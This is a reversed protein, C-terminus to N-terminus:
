SHKRLFPNFDPDNYMKMQKYTKVICDGKRINAFLQDIALSLDIKQQLLVSLSSSSKDLIRSDTAEGVRKEMYYIKINLISLRDIAWAPTETNIFANEKATIGQFEQFFVEDIQEVTDTREQNCRDIEWKYTIGKAPPTNRDRVIDELQWQRNDIWNKAFLLSDLNGEPYPNNIPIFIDGKQHYATISEQFIANIQQSTM